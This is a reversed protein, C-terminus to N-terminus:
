RAPEARASLLVGFRVSAVLGRVLRRRAEAATALLDADGYVSLMNEFQELLDVTKNLVSVIDGEAMDVRETIQEVSAGRCWAHAIGYFWESPGQALEIGEGAELAAIREYTTRAQRRLTFLRRSLTYGNDPRRRTDSAFWSIVEALEAPDLDDFARREYLESLV